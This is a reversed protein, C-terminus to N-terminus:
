RRHITHRWLHRRFAAAVKGGVHRRFAAGAFVEYEAAAAEGGPRRFSRSRTVAAKLVVNKPGM